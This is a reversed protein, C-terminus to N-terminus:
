RQLSGHARESLSAAVWLVYARDRSSLRSLPVTTVKGTDKLLRVRDEFIVAVRAQVRYTGTNDTWERYEAGRFARTAWESGSTDSSEDSPESSTAIMSESSHAVRGIEPEGDPDMDINSANASEPPTGFLLAVNPATGQACADHFEPPAVSPIESVEWRESDSAAIPHEADHQDPNEIPESQNSEGLPETTERSLSDGPHASSEVSPQAGIGNLAFLGNPQTAARLDLRHDQSCWAASPPIARLTPAHIRFEAHVLTTVCPISSLGTGLGYHVALWTPNSQLSDGSDVTPHAHAVGVAVKAARDGQLERSGQQLPELRQPGSWCTAVMLAVCGHLLAEQCEVSPRVAARSPSRDSTPGASLTPQTSGLTTVTVM